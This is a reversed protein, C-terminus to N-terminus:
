CVDIVARNSSYGNEFHNPVMEIAVLAVVAAIDQVTEHAADVALRVFHFHLKADM